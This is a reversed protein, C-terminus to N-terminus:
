PTAGALHHAFFSLTRAWADRAPTVTFSRRTDNFFAHPAGAYIYHEFSKGAQDMADVFAPVGDTIRTDDGGYIGLVPCTIDAIREAPPAGGYFIVAASLSPEACALHASLAGGLCFGVSGVRGTCHADDALTAVAARLDKTYRDIPRNPSFLLGLTESVEEAHQQSLEALARDRREADMWSGPPMTDLFSKADEIRRPSLADPRGGRSYLDPAFTLYGCTALREAVDRIHDDPGWIEQIVVVAPLPEDTAAPRARYADIDQGDSQYGTWETELKM